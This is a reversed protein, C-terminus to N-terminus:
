RALLLKRLFRHQGVPMADQPLARVLGTGDTTKFYLIILNRTVFQRPQLMLEGCGLTWRDSDLCRLLESEQAQWQYFWLTITVLCVILASLRAWWVIPLGLLIILVALALGFQAMLVAKSPHVDFTARNKDAIV